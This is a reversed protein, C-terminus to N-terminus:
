QSARHLRMLREALPRIAQPALAIRLFTRPELELDLCPIPAQGQRAVREVALGIPEIMTRYAPGPKESARAIGMLLPMLSDIARAPPITCEIEDDGSMIVLRVTGSGDIDVSKLTGNFKMADEDKAMRGRAKGQWAKGRRATGQWAAGHRASGRGARGHKNLDCKKM